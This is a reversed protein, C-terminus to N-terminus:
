TKDRFAMRVFDYNVALFNKFKHEVYTGVAKDDTVGYLKPEPYTSELMAFVSAEKILSEITLDIKM